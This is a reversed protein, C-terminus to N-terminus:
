IRDNKDIFCWELQPNRCVSYAYLPVHSYINTKIDDIAGIEMLTM